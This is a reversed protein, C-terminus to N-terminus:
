PLHHKRLSSPARKSSPLPRSRTRAQMAYKLSDRRQEQSYKYQEAHRPLAAPGSMKAVFCRQLFRALVPRLVFRSHMTHAPTDGWLGTKAAQAQAELEEYLDHNDAYAAGGGGTYLM